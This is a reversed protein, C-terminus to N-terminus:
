NYCIVRKAARARRIQFYHIVMCGLVLIGVYGFVPFIISILNGFGGLSFVWVMAAVGILLLKRHKHFVPVKKEMYFTMGVLSAMANSFMGPMMLIGYITGLTPSLMTGLAVMPLEADVAHPCVSVAMIISVAVGVLMLGSLAIGKYITGRKRILKGIPTIVGVAGLVNYAVYNVASVIWNPMLPNHTASRPHFIGNLGYEHMAGASFCISVIVLLPVLVSFVKVMGNVGSMAVIAIAAAFIAGGLWCPVGALQNLMAAVGATMITIVGVLYLESVVGTAKRLWPIDWPVLVQDIEESGTMQTIRLLLVGLVVFLLASVLFGVYGWNGFAGFYQWLEQGSVFGAGLFCGVYTVSLALSRVEKM